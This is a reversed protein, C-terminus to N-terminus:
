ELSDILSLPMVGLSKNSLYSSDSVKRFGLLTDEVFKGFPYEGDRSALKPICPNCLKDNEYCLLYCLLFKGVVVYLNVCFGAVM